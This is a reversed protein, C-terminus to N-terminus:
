AIAQMYIQLIILLLIFKVQGNSHSLNNTFPVPQLVFVVISARVNREVGTADNSTTILAYNIAKLLRWDTAQLLPPYSKILLRFISRNELWFPFLNENIILFVFHDVFSYANYFVTWNNYIKKCLSLAAEM